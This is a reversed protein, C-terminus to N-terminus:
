GTTSWRRMRTSSAHAHSADLDAWLAMLRCVGRKTGDEGLRTAAGAYVDHAKAYSVAWEAAIEVNPVFVQRMRGDEGPPKYRLEIRHEAGLAPQLAAFYQGAVRVSPNDEKLIFIEKM